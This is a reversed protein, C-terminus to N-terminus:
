GLSSRGAYKRMWALPDVHTTGNLLIEFHLHSGFSHGTNGVLGLVDGVKVHQGVKVQISGYQMHAYHSSVLQGDIVHDVYVNVGYGGGNETAIRVVGDAIVHIKAGDGPTLDIGQHMRGWRQGYGWTMPVGVPFPWQIAANPDNTYLDSTENIGDAQAIDTLSAIAFGGGRDIEPNEVEAPTVYAQIDDTAETEADETAAMVQATGQEINTKSAAVAAPPTTMGVALLGAVAMASVSFSAAAVRKFSVVGSRKAAARQKKARQARPEVVPEAKEAVPQQVATEGTFSFTRAAAEFEDHAPSATPQTERQARLERRTLPRDTSAGHPM